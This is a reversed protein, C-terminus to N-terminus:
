EGDGAGHQLLEIGPLIVSTFEKRRRAEAQLAHIQIGSHPLSIIRPGFIM